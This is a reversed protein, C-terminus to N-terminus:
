DETIASRLDRIVLSGEFDQTFQSLEEGVIKLQDAKERLFEFSSKLAGEKLDGLANVPMKDLEDMTGKLAKVEYRLVGLFNEMAVEIEAREEIVKDVTSQVLVDRADPLMLEVPPNDNLDPLYEQVLPYGEQPIEQKRIKQYIPCKSAEADAMFMHVVNKNSLQVRRTKPNLATYGIPKHHKVKNYNRLSPYGFAMLVVEVYRTEMMPCVKPDCPNKRKMIRTDKYEQTRHCKIIPRVYGVHTADSFNVIGNPYIQKPPTHTESIWQTTSFPFCEFVVYQTIAQQLSSVCHHSLIKTTKYYERLGIYADNLKDSHVTTIKLPIEGSIGDLENRRRQAANDVHSYIINAAESITYTAEYMENIICSNSM